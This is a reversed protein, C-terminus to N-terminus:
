RRPGSFYIFLYILSGVIVKDPWIPWMTFGLMAAKVHFHPTFLTLEPSPAQDKGGVSLTSSIVMSTDLHLLWDHSLAHAVQSSQPIFLMQSLRLHLAGHSCLRCSFVYKYVSQITHSSLKFPSVYFSLCSVKHLHHGWITLTSLQMWLVNGKPHKSDRVYVWLVLNM